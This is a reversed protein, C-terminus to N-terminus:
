NLKQSYNDRVNKNIYTTLGRGKEALMKMQEIHQKGPKKYDYLYSNKHKFQLIIGNQLFQYGTIGSGGSLDKYNKLKWLFSNQNPYLFRV